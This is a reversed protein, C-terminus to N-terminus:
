SGIRIPIASFEGPDNELGVGGRIVLAIVDGPETGRLDLEVQFPESKELSGGMTIKRDILEIRDGIRHASVVLLAEFGRGRGSVTLMGAPVTSASVPQDITMAPNIAGIVSWRETPGLQRMLLLSRVVRANETPSFVEIEGSRSDGAMFDGLVPDVGILTRVAAHAAQEPTDAEPRDASWIALQGIVGEGPNTTRCGVLVGAVLLSTGFTRLTRMMRIVM